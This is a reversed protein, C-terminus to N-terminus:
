LVFLGRFSVFHGDATFAHVSKSDNHSIITVM